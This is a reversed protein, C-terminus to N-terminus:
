YEDLEVKPLPNLLLYILNYFYEENISESARRSESLCYYNGASQVAILGDNVVAMSGINNLVSKVDAIKSVYLSACHLNIVSIIIMLTYLFKM